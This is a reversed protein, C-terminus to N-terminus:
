VIHGGVGVGDNSVVGTAHDQVGVTVGRVEGLGASAAAGATMEKEAICWDVGVQGGSLERSQVTGNVGDALYEVNDNAGGGLSFNSSGVDIAPLGDRKADREGLEVVGLRGCGHLYVVGCGFTKGVVCDLLLTGFGHVHTEVPNTIVDPLLLEQYVVTGATSVESIREGFV